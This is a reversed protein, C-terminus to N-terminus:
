AARIRSEKLAGAPKFKACRHDPLCGECLAEGCKQCKLSHEECGAVAGCDTCTLALTGYTVANEGTPDNEVPVSADCRFLAPM